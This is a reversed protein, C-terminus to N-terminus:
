GNNPRKKDYDEKRCDDCIGFIDLKHSKITFNHKKGINEQLKELEEDYFEIIKGCSICILHDHHEGRHSPEFRLFGDGLEIQNALGSEVLRRLTRYITSYSVKFGKKKMEEYLEEVSWHKDKRLFYFIVDMRKPSNKFGKDDKYKKWKEMEFSFNIKM